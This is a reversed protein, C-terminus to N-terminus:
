TASPHAGILRALIPGLFPVRCLRRIRRLRKLGSVKVDHRRGERSWRLTVLLDIKSIRGAPLEDAHAKLMQEDPQTRLLGRYIARVFAEHDLRLFEELAYKRKAPFFDDAEIPLIERRREVETRIRAILEAVDVPTDLRAMDSFRVNM